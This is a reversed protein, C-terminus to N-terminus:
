GLGLGWCEKGLAPGASGTDKTGTHDALRGYERAEVEYPNSGYGVTANAKAYKAGFAEDQQMQAVHRLEHILSNNLVYHHRDEYHGKGAVRIKVLFAEPGIRKAEGQQGASRQDKVRVKIVLNPTVEVGAIAMAIELAETDTHLPNKAQRSEKRRDKIDLAHKQPQPAEM